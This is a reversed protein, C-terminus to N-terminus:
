AWSFYSGLKKIVPSSWPVGSSAKSVDAQKKQFRRLRNPGASDSGNAFSNKWDPLVIPSTVFKSHSYTISFFTALSPSSGGGGAKEPSSEGIRINWM